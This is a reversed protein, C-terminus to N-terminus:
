NFLNRVEEDLVVMPGLHQLAYFHQLAPVDARTLVLDSNVDSFHVTHVPLGIEKRLRLFREVTELPIIPQVFLYTLRPLLCLPSPTTFVSTEYDFINGGPTPCVPMRFADQSSLLRTQTKYYVLRFKTVSPALPALAAFLKDNNPSIIQEGPSHIEM